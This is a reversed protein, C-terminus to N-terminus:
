NAWYNGATERFSKKTCPINEKKLMERWFCDTKASSFKTDAVVTLFRERGMLYMLRKVDDVNGWELVRQLVWRPYSDLDDETLPKDWFLRGTKNIFEKKDSIQVDNEFPELEIKLRCGLATAIKRLTSIEFRQWGNEYRSLTAPSTDVLRALKSM